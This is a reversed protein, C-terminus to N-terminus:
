CDGPRRELVSSGGMTLTLPMRGEVRPLALQIGPFVIEVTGFQVTCCETGTFDENWYTDTSIRSRMAITALHREPDNLAGAILAMTEACSTTSRFTAPASEYGPALTTMEPVELSLVGVRFETEGQGEVVDECSLRENLPIEAEPVLHTSEARASLPMVLAFCIAVFRRTHM